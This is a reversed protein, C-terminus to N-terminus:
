GGRLARCANGLSSPLGGPIHKQLLLKSASLSAVPHLLRDRHEGLIQPWTATPPTASGPTPPWQSPLAYAHPLNRPRAARHLDEHSDRFPLLVLDCLGDLQRDVEARNGGGDIVGIWGRM